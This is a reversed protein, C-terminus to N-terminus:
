AGKSSLASFNIVEKGEEIGGGMVSFSLVIVAALGVLKFEM